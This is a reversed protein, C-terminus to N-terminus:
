GQCPQTGLVTTPSHTKDSSFPPHILLSPPSIARYAGAQPLTFVPSTDMIDLRTSLEAPPVTKSWLHIFHFHTPQM